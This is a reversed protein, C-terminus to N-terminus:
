KYKGFTIELDDIWVKDNTPNYFYTNLQNRGDNTLEVTFHFATWNNKELYPMLDKSNYVSNNANSALEYILKPNAKNSECYINASVQVFDSGYPMRGKYGGSYANTADIMQSFKGSRSKSNTRLDLTLWNATTEFDTKFQKTVTHPKFVRYSPKIAKVKFYSGWYSSKTVGTTPLIGNQFQYTQFLNLAIFCTALSVWILILGRQQKILQLGGALLIAIVAYYDVFVRQGFSAGYTWIWWCSFVYTLVSFGLLGSVFILKKTKYFQIFGLVTLAIMPTYVIWGKEYSLLMKFFHPNTFDFGEEGYSYVIFHGTQIYWWFVPYLALLLPIGLAIALNKKSRFLTSFFSKLEQLDGLAFPLFLLMLLNTPRVIIALAFLSIAFVLQKTQKEACFRKTFLLMGALLTFNYAHTLSPDEITYYFLNTGFAIAIVTATAIAPSYGLRKLLNHTWKLGLWVYFIAAMGIAYQYLLSYGDPEFSFLYSLFHALLFFPLWLLTIGPFTKNAIEGKFDQRFEKFLSKDPPYYKAEYKEVFEYDLDQYIVSATLYAYYSKGDGSITKDWKSGPDRILFFSVLLALGILTVSRNSLWNFISPNGSM